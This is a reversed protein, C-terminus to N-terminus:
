LLGQARLEGVTLELEDYWAQGFRRILPERLFRYVPLKEKQGLAVAAKCISWRDYNLAICSGFDKVRIPYLQCSIPKIFSTRGQHWAKELTCFCCGGDDRSAFACDREGVISTVLEGEIDPYVVGQQRIVKRAEPTLDQWVEPLAEELLAVEDMTVPAGADGEVCCAGRCARLDCRFCERLVDFSVLINGVQLM